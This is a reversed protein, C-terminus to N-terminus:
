KCNAQEQPTMTSPDHNPTTTTHACNDSDSSGNNTGSNTSAGSNTTSNTANPDLANGNSGNASPNVTGNNSSGSTGTGSNAGSGISGSGSTGGTASGAGGSAQAMASTALGLSLVSATIIKMLMIKEKLKTFSMSKVVTLRAQEQNQCFIRLIVSVDRFRDPPDGSQHRRV